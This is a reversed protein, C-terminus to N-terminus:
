LQGIFAKNLPSRLRTDGKYFTVVKEGVSAINPGTLGFQLLSAAETNL